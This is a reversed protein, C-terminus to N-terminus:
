DTGLDNGSPAYVGFIGIMPSSNELRVSRDQRNLNQDLWGGLRLESDYRYSGVLIAATSNVTGVTDNLTNTL